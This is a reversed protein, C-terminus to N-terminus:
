AVNRGRRFGETVYMLITLCLWFTASDAFKYNNITLLPGNIIVLLCSDLHLNKKVVM